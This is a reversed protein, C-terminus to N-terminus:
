DLYQTLVHLPVRDSWDDNEQEVVEVLRHWLGDPNPCDRAAVVELFALALIAVSREYRADSEAACVARVGALWAHLIEADDLSSWRQLVPGAVATAGDVELLRAGLAFSWPRRLVPVDAATRVRGPVAVGLVSGAPAVDVRRLVRSATVPRGERGVWRALAGAQGAMPCGRALRAAHAADVMETGSFPRTQMQTVSNTRRHGPRRRSRCARPM